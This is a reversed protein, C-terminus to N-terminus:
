TNILFFKVEYPELIIEKDIRNQIPDGMIITLGTKVQIDRKNILLVCKEKKNTVALVEITDDSSGSEVIASSNLIHEAFGKKVDYTPWLRYEGDDNKSWMGFGSDPFLTTGSYFIEASVPSRIIWQLASAYLAATFQEDLYPMYGFWFNSGLETIIIESDSYDVFDSVIFSNLEHLSDYFIKKTDRIMLDEYAKRVSPNSIKKIYVKDGKVLYNGYLHISLFDLGNVKGLFIGLREKDMETLFPQSYGGVKTNKSINKIEDYVFNYMITYTDNEWWYDQWPENWIEWYWDDINCNMSLLDNECAEKYHMVIKSCYQAFEEFNGPPSHNDGSEKQILEIPAHAIVVLPTAGTELVTNIFEDLATFNYEDESVFPITSQRFSPSNIWVRIFESGINKHFGQVEKDHVFDMWNDNENIGYKLNVRGVEKSFNITVLSIHKKQDSSESNPVIQSCALIFPLIILMLILQTKM